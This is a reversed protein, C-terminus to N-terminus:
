NDVYNQVNVSHEELTAACYIQGNKDHCFYYYNTDDPHLAAYIADDGPNCIPGVPLGVVQYTDYVSLLKTIQSQQMLTEDLNTIYDQTSDCSLNGFYAPDALRNHLISSITFMQNEDNAEKQIISAITLIEDVTYGLEDAAAQYSETWRNDFNNLFRDIVSYVNEGVYFEYTDPYIYGELLRYRDTPNDISNMFEYGEPFEYNAIANYFANKSEVVRDTYLKEAIQDITYGEPFTVVVTELADTENLMKDLMREVGMDATLVHEGPFYVSDEEYGLFGMLLNCFDASYILGNKELMAIVQSTKMGETIYVSVPNDNRDIAIIDNVCGMIPIRFALSTLVIIVILLISILLSLFNHIRRKKRFMRRREEKEALQKNAPTKKAAPKAPAKAAPKAPAKAPQKANTKAPTKAAAATKKQASAATAKKPENAKPQQAMATKEEKPLQQVYMNNQVPPKNSDAAIRTLPKEQQTQRPQPTSQKAADAQTGGAAPRNASVPQNSFNRLLDDYASSIEVRSLEREKNENNKENTNM